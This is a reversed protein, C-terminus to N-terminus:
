KKPEPKKDDKKSDTKKDKDDMKAGAHSAAVVSGTSLAFLCAIVVTLLKRM